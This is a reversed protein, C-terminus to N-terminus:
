LCRPRYFQFPSLSLSPSSSPIFYLFENRFLILTQKVTASTLVALRNTEWGQVWMRETEPSEILISLHHSVFDLAPLPLLPLLAFLVPWTRCVLPM